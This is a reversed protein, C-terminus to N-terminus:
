IVYTVTEFGRHPHWSTGRAEGPAYEVAGMHDLLLFPDALALDTAPFPRRVEFGEGELFRQATVVRVVPRWATGRAPLRPLRPLALTDATVAPMPGGRYPGTACTGRPRNSWSPRSRWSSTWRTASCCRTAR